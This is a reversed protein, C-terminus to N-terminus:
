NFCNCDKTPEAKSAFFTHTLCSPFNTLVNTANVNLTFKPEFANTVIVKDSVNWVLQDVNVAVNTTSVHGSVYGRPGECVNNASVKVM